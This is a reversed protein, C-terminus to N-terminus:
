FLKILRFLNNTSLKDPFKSLSKLTFKFLKFSNFKDLLKISFTSVIYFNFKSHGFKFTKNKFPFGMALTKPSFNKFYTQSSQKGLKSTRSLSCISRFFRKESYDLPRNECSGTKLLYLSCKIM